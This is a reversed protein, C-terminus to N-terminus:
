ASSLGLEAIFMDAAKEAIAVATNMTNAAVNRPPISLDAVKLGKVGYVSLYQDVVGGEERPAMKCTGMSHWTTGVRDRLFSEIVEDDEATYVIDQISGDDLRFKAAGSNAAFTPHGGPLEGTCLPMRRLIERQKKYAWVHMKVDVGHADSFFGTTLETKDDIEPGTIHISGRSYPYATFMSISIYQGVPVGSPDGPFRCLILM